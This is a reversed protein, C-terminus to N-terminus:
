IYKWNTQKGDKTTSDLYTEWTGGPFQLSNKFLLTALVTNEQFQIDSDPSRLQSTFHNTYHYFVHLGHDICKQVITDIANIM